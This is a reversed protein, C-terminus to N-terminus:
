RGLSYGRHHGLHRRLYLSLVLTAGRQYLGADAGYDAPFTIAFYHGFEALIVAGAGLLWAGAFFLAASLLIFGKLESFRTSTESDVTSSLLLPVLLSGVPVSILSLVGASSDGTDLWEWVAIAPIAVALLILTGIAGRPIAKLFSKGSRWESVAFVLAGGVVVVVVTLAVQAADSM